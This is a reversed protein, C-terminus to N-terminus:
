ELTPLRSEDFFSVKLSDSHTILLFKGKLAKDLQIALITKSCNKIKRGQGKLPRLTCTRKKKNTAKRKIFNQVTPTERLNRCNKKVTPNSHWHIRSISPKGTKLQM